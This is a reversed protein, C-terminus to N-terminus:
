SSLIEEIKADRPLGLDVARRYHKDAKKLNPKKGTTYFISLNFHADAYDPNISVAKSFSEEARQAWGKKSSIVGVCNLAKANDPDIKLGEDFHKLAEDFQGQEFHVVGLLYYSRGNSKNEKLLGRLLKEAKDYQQMQMQVSALNCIGEANGPRYDLFRQYAREADQYRGENFDLRAVKQLQELHENLDQLSVVPSGDTKKGEVLIAGHLKAGGSGQVLDAVQPQRFLKQEEETLGPVASIKDLSALLAKSEIGLDDLQTLIMQRAQKIQAQRRLQRLVVGRLLRNEELTESSSGPDMEVVGESMQKLRIELEAIHAEHRKNQEILEQRGEAIEAIKEKLMEVEIQKDGNVKALTEAQARAKTLDERLQANIRTLRAVAKSSDGSSEIIAALQDREKELENRELQLQTVQARALELEQLIERNQRNAKELETLAQSLQSKLLAVQEKAGQDEVKENLRRILDQERQQAQGLRQQIERRSAERAAVAEDLSQNQTELQRIRAEMQQFQERIQRTADIFPSDGAPVQPRPAPMQAGQPSAIANPRPLARAEPSPPNAFERDWTPLDNGPGTAPATPAASASQAPPQVPATSGGTNAAPVEGTQVGDAPMAGSSAGGNRLFNKLNSIKDGLERRRYRVISPHFNTHERAVADFLSKSEVFKNYAALAKKERELDEGEKMLVFARFWLDSPDIQQAVGTAVAGGFWAFFVVALLLSLRGSFTRKRYNKGM